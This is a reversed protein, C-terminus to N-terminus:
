KHLFHLPHEIFTERSCSSSSWTVLFFGTIFIRTEPTTKTVMIYITEISTTTTPTSTQLVPTGSIITSM